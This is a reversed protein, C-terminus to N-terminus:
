SILSLSAAAERAQAERRTLLPAIQDRYGALIKPSATEPRGSTFPPAPAYELGLQLTQAVEAGAIEALVTLAFDIGATVGGGTFVRGDRVVRGEDPIAGFLPLLHRWAWHCAARKGHLLGAAGLILSGTCVSTVYRAGGGLRRIEAVFADDLAVDLANLGGPVCLLDCGAVDSLRRTDAFVLGESPVAGGILSAVITESGPMRSLFQHPGTFDLQTMGPYVAFLIRFPLRSM